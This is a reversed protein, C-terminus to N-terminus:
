NSVPLAEGEEAAVTRGPRPVWPQSPETVREFAKPLQAQRAPLRACPRCGVGAAAPEGAAPDAGLAALAGAGRVAAAGEEGPAGAGFPPPGPSSSRAGAAQRGEPGSRARGAGALGQLFCVGFWVGSALREARASPPAAVAAPDPRGERPPLARCGGRGAASREAGWSVRGAGAGAAGSGAM